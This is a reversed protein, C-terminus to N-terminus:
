RGAERIAPLVHEGMDRIFASQDTGVHHLYLRDVDAGLESLRDRLESLEHTVIVHTRIDDITAGAARVDFEEPTALDWLAPPTVVAHRWQELAIAEAEARSSAYSVHVQLSVPGTGGADRYAAITDRHADGEQLVTVLGDAWSAVHAAGEPSVAAAFLSPAIEPRTWVRARDVTILEDHRTVEEGTLLKRIVDANAALRDRRMSHDPWPAGTVHENLNEGSALAAWIRGPFMAGLTGLAQAVIVGHMRQGPATVLGLGLRTTALAAGLWSWSFGSHRQATTWPALHDSCMAADFGAFEADQVAALLASPHMQEHSAHFGVIPM